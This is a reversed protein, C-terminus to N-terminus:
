YPSPLGFHKGHGLPNRHKSCETLIEGSVQRNVQASGIRQNVYAVLADHQVLGRHHRDAVFTTGLALLRNLGDALFGLGHQALHRAIDLRDARHLVAHDGVEGDGLLHELLEDLHHM